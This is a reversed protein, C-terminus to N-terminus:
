REDNLAERAIQGGDDQIFSTEYEGMSSHSRVFLDYHKRNAYFKLADYAADIQKRLSMCANLANDRQQEVEALKKKLEIIHDLTIPDAYRDAMIKKSRYGVM